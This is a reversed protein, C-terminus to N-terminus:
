IVPMASHTQIQPHYYTVHYGIQSLHAYQQGLLKSNTEVPLGFTTSSGMLAVSSAVVTTVFVLRM